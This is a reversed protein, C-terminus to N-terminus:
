MKGFVFFIAVLLAKIFGTLSTLFEFLSKGTGFSKEPKPKEIPTSPWQIKNIVKVKQKSDKNKKKSLKKRNKSMAM